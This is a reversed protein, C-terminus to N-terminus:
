TTEGSSPCRLRFDEKTLLCLAKGNMEFKEHDARRLAYERQAWRLWLNVDDKDWLSPNIGSLCCCVRVCRVLAKICVLNCLSAMKTQKRGYTKYLFM